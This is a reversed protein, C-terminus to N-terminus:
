SCLRIMLKYKTNQIKYKYTILEKNNNNEEVSMRTCFCKFAVYNGKPVDQQTCAIYFDAEADHFTYCVRVM